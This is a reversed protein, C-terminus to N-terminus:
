SNRPRGKPYGPIGPKLRVGLRKCVKRVYSEDLPQDALRHLFSDLEETLEKITLTGGATLWQIWFLLQEERPRKGARIATPICRFFDLDKRVYAAYFSSGIQQFLPDREKQVQLETEHWAAVKPDVNPHKKAMEIVQAVGV